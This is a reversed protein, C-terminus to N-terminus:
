TPTTSRLIWTFTGHLVPMALFVLVNLMTSPDDVRSSILSMVSLVILLFLPAAAAVVVYSEAMVGIGDLHARQQRRAEHEFQTSKALIYQKLAGGSTITNVSGMLFEGWQPSPSRTAADRLARVLDRSMLTVDRDILDAERALQGYVPQQGISAFIRAPLVGAGALAAMHHMAHPLNEEIDSRRAAAIMDPRLLRWAYVASAALTPIVGLPVAVGASAGGGTALVYVAFPLAALVFAAATLVYTGALYAAPPSAIRAQHLRLGLGPHRSQRSGALPGAVRAGFRDIFAASLDAGGVDAAV